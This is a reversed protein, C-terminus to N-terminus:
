FYLTFGATWMSGKYSPLFRSFGSGEEASATGATSSDDEGFRLFTYRYDAHAGAHRGLRLEAGFGGHWGFKRTSDSSVAKDDRLQEVRQNYWGAGGLVYPAFATRVPFLLLSAQVPYDRVRQTHAENTETRMDLAVELASRPSIRARVHGGTFRQASTDADVDGRILSMRAGLGFSEGQALAPASASLALTAVLFALRM